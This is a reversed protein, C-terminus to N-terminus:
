ALRRSHLRPAAMTTVIHLLVSGASAPTRNALQGKSTTGGAVVIRAQAARLAAIGPRHGLGVEGSRAVVVVGGGPAGLDAQTAKAQYPILHLCM